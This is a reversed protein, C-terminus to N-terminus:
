RVIMHKTIRKGTSRDTVQLYYVGKAWAAVPIDMQGNLTTSMVLQGIANYVSVQLADTITTSVHVVDAVPVPYVKIDDAANRSPQKSVALPFTDIFVVTTDNPSPLTIAITSDLTMTFNSGNVNFFVNHNGKVKLRATSTTAVNPMLINASGSNPVRAVLYPWKYGGNVSLYLNVSDCSVPAADTGVVNWTVNQVSGGNWNVATSPSTVKFGQYNAAAGTSSADLHITDDPILICGTGQFITRVTNIFTLFRTTDPVKEGTYSLTGALVKSMTPFVRTRLTDPDFSRFIPGKLHTNAFTAGFDGRNWQEWCYTTLTDAVSDVAVPSTLEFPTKYPIKYIATFNALGAPKNNTNTKVPCNNIATTSVIYSSIDKLSKAHFYPDSHPQVDDPPCIGAYAMITTGSSPEYASNSSANGSCSGNANNNFTHNAGFQHGMEHAVYDIDFGDGVPAGSGTVGQAKSSNKCVCGLSAIGGGGTSFVHGMDFNASGIRNTVTTQNQGLMTGGNNNTFPDSVGDLFILTDENAILTMTISLETEYVGNVRNISTVMHPFVLAKTPNVGAVAVAYEGTCSLALRYNRLTYGSATKYAMRPLGNSNLELYDEQLLEDDKVECLMRLGAPVVHDRKYYCIYYGDNEKSYPDIFYTGRGDFIMAHFGTSSFDIKVTVRQNNLAYATFTRVDPYERELAPEMMHSQWVAFSRYSGDPAPLEITQAAKVNDSLAFLFSKMFENNLSFVRFNDPHVQQEGKSPVHRADVEQWISNFAKATISTICALFVILYRFTRKM